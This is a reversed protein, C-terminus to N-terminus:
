GEKCPTLAIHALTLADKWTCGDGRYASRLARIAQLALMYDSALQEVDRESAQAGHISFTAVRESWSPKYPTGCQKHKRM